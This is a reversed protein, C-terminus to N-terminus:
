SSGVIQKGFLRTPTGHLVIVTLCMTRVNPVSEGGLTDGASMALAKRARPRPISSM